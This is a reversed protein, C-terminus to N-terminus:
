SAEGHIVVKGDEEVAKYFSGGQSLLEGKSIALVSNLFTWKGSNWEDEYETMLENLLELDVDPRIVVDVEVGNEKAYSQIEDLVQQRVNEVDEAEEEADEIVYHNEDVHKSLNTIFEAFDRIDKIESKTHENGGEEYYELISWAEDVLYSILDTHPTHCDEGRVDRIRSNLFEDGTHMQLEHTVNKAIFDYMAGEWEYIDKTENYNQVAQEFEQLREILEAKRGSVKLGRERLMERLEVVKYQELNKM